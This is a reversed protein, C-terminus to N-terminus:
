KSDDDDLPSIRSLNTKLVDKKGCFLKLWFFTLFSKYLYADVIELMLDIMKLPHSSEKVTYFKFAIRTSLEVFKCLNDLTFLFLTFNYAFVAIFVFHKEKSPPYTFNLQFVLLLSLIKSAVVAYEVFVIIGKNNSILIADYVIVVVLIVNLSWFYPKKVLRWLIERNSLPRLSSILKPCALSSGLLWFLSTLISCCLWLGKWCYPGCHPTASLYLTFNLECNVSTEAHFLTCDVMFIVFHILCLFRFIQMLIYALFLTTKFM